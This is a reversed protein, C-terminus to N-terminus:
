TVFTSEVGEDSYTVEGTGFIGKREGLAATNITSGTGDGATVSHVDSLCPARRFMTDRVMTGGEGSTEGFFGSNGIM